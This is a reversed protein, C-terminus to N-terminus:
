NLYLYAVVIRWNSANKEFERIIGDQSSFFSDNETVPFLIKFGKKRTKGSKWTPQFRNTQGIKSEGEAPFGSHSVYHSAAQGRLEGSFGRISGSSSLSRLSEGICDTM